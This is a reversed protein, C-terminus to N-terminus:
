NIQEIWRTPWKLVGYKHPKVKSFCYFTSWLSAIHFTKREAQLSKSLCKNSNWTAHTRMGKFRLGWKLQIRLKLAFSLYERREHEFKANWIRKVFYLFIFVFESSFAQQLESCSLRWELSTSLIAPSLVYHYLLSSSWAAWMAPCRNSRSRQCLEM